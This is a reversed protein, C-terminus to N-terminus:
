SSAALGVVGVFCSLIAAMMQGFGRSAEELAVTVFTTAVVFFLAAATVSAVRASM